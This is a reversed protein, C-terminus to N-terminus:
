RPRENRSATRTAARCHLVAQFILAGKRMNDLHLNQPDRTPLQESRSGVLSKKNLRCVSDLSLRNYLHRINESLIQIRQTNEPSNQVCAANEPPNQVSAANNPSMEGNQVAPAYSLQGFVFATNLDLGFVRSYRGWRGSIVRFRLLM